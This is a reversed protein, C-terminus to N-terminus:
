LPVINNQRNKPDIFDPSDGLRNDKRLIPDWELAFEVAADPDPYLTAQLAAQNAAIAAQQEIWIQARQESDDYLTM